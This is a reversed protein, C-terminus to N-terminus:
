EHEGGPDNKDLEIRKGNYYMHRTRSPTHYGNTKHELRLKFISSNNKAAEFTTVTIVIAALFIIHVIMTVGMVFISGVYMSFVICWMWALVQLVMHRTNIDPIHKLPNVDANMIGNWSDYIFERM